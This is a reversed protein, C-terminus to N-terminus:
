ALTDVFTGAQEEQWKENRASRREGFEAKFRAEAEEALQPNATEVDSKSYARFKMWQVLNRHFRAPIEPEDTEQVLPDLPERAVSLDIVGSETPHPYLRIFGSAWDDVYILPYKARTVRWGPWIQEMRGVKMRELPLVQGRVIANRIVIIRSDIELVPSAATYSLSCVDPTVSDIIQWGRRVAEMVADNAFETVEPDSWLYPAVTDFVESRFTARLDSLKM